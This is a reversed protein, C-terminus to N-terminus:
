FCPPKRLIEAVLKELLLVIYQKTAAFKLSKIDEECHFSRLFEIHQGECQQCLWEAAAYVEVCGYAKFRLQVIQQQKLLLALEIVDRNAVHGAQVITWRSDESDFGGAHQPTRLLNLTSQSHRM